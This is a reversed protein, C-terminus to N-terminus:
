QLTSRAKLLLEEGSVTIDATVRVAVNSTDAAERLKFRKDFVRTEYPNITITEEILANEVIESPQIEFIMKGNSDGSFPGNLLVQFSLVGAQISVPSTMQLSAGPYPWGGTSQKISFTQGEWQLVAEVIFESAAQLPEPKSVTYEYRGASEPMVSVTFVKPETDGSNKLTLTGALQAYGPNYLATILARSGDKASLGWEFRLSVGALLALAEIAEPSDVAAIDAAIVAKEQNFQNIAKQQIDLPKDAAELLVQYLTNLSNPAKDGLRWKARHLRGLLQDGPNRWLNTMANRNLDVPNPNLDRGEDFYPTIHHSANNALIALPRHLLKERVDAPVSLSRTYEAVNNIERGTRLTIDLSGQGISAIVALRPNDDAELVHLITQPLPYTVKQMGLTTGDVVLTYGEDILVRVFVDQDPDYANEKNAEDKVKTKPPTQAAVALGMGVLGRHLHEKAFAIEIGVSPKERGRAIDRMLVSKESAPFDYLLPSYVPPDAPNLAFDIRPIGKETNYLRAWFANGDQEWPGTVLNFTKRITSLYEAFQQNLMNLDGFADKLAQLSLQTLDGHPSKQKFLLDRYLKFQQSREPHDLMFHTILFNLGRRLSPNSNIQAIDPEGAEAYQELGNKVYDMVPRDFVMLKLQKKEPDYVHHAISDALGETYWTPHWESTGGVAMHFAHATEHIVIYRQHHARASPFNYGARNYFMTEGGATEHVGRNFGDDLMAVKTDWRSSAYVVAIRQVDNNPPEAGFAEIYHPYSMELLELYLRIKDESLDSKLAFHRSVWWDFGPTNAIKGESYTAPILKGVNAIDIHNLTSVRGSVIVDVAMEIPLPVRQLGTNAAPQDVTVPNPMAHEQNQPHCALLQLALLVLLINFHKM